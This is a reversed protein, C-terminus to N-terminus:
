FPNCFGVNHSIILASIPSPRLPRRGGPRRATPGGFRGGCPAAFPSAKNRAAWHRRGPFVQRPPLGHLFQRCCGDKRLQLSFLNRENSQAHAVPRHCLQQGLLAHLHGDVILLARLLQTFGSRLQGGHPYFKDGPLVVQLFQLAIHNEARRPHIKVVRPQLFQHFRATSDGAFQFEKHLAAGAGDYPHCAAVAFGRRGAQNGLHQPLAAFRHMQAAIDTPRQERLQFRYLRVIHRHHLKGRELQKGHPLARFNRYHGIHGRVMQIDVSCHLLVNGGLFINKQVLPGKGGRHQIGVAGCGGTKCRFYPAVAPPEAPPVRHLAAGPQIFRTRQVVGVALPIGREKRYTLYLYRPQVIHFIHQRGYRRHPPQNGRLHDALHRVGEGPHFVANFKHPFQIPHAPVVIGNGGAGGAGNGPQFAKVLLENDNGPSIIFVQVVGWQGPRYQFM